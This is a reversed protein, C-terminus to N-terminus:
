TPERVPPPEYVSSLNRQADLVSASELVLSLDNLGAERLIQPSIIREM